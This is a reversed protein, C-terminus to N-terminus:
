VRSEFLEEDTMEVDGEPTDEVVTEEMEVDEAAPEIQELFTQLETSQAVRQLLATLRAVETDSVLDSLGMDVPVGAQEAITMIAMLVQVLDPPFSTIDETFQPYPQPEGFRALLDNVVQLMSNMASVSFQGTPTAMQMNQAAAQDMGAGIAQTQMAIDQPISM